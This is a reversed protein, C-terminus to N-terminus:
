DNASEKQGQFMDHDLVTSKHHGIKVSTDVHVPFGLIGARICFTIDEGCPQGSLETEQYWPFAANFGKDRIAELVTRHILVFASGTAACQVLENDPYDGVRVTTMGGTETKAFQYITPFLANNSMGFCLGGVIPATSPDASALLQGLAEHDFAMDADIWLLWEAQTHHALFQATLSNRSSSVNASSWENLCGVIRRGTAQDFMMMNVLSQTFYASTEGPHIYAIVVRDTAATKMVPKKAAAKQRNSM